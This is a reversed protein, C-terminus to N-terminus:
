VGQEGSVVGRQSEVDRVPQEWASAVNKRSRASAKWRQNAVPNIQLGLREHTWSKNDALDCARESVTCQCAHSAEDFCGWSYQKQCEPHQENTVADCSRCGDTWAGQQAHCQSETTSCDCKHTEVNYCGTGAETLFFSALLVLLSVM